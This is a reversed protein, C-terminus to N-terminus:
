RCNREDETDAMVHCYLVRVARGNEKAASFEKIAGDRDTFVDTESPEGYDFFKTVSFKLKSESTMRNLKSERKQLEIARDLVRDFYEPTFPSSVNLGRGIKRMEESYERYQKIHDRATELTRLVFEQTTWEEKEHTKM